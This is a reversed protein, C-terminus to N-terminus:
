IIIRLCLYLLKILAQLSTCSNGAQHAPNPVINNNVIQLVLQSASSALKITVDNHSSRFLGQEFDTRSFIVDPMVNQCHITLVWGKKINAM